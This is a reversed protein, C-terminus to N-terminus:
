VERAAMTKVGNNDGTPESLHLGQNQRLCVPLHTTGLCVPGLGVQDPVLVRPLLQLKLNLYNLNPQEM